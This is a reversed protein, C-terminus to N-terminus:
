MSQNNNEPGFIGESVFSLDLEMVVICLCKQHTKQASLLCIDKVYYDPPLDLKKAPKIYPLLDQCKLQQQFVKSGHVIITESIYFESFTRHQNKQFLILKLLATVLHSSDFAALTFM